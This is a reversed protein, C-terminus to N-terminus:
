NDMGLSVKNSFPVWFMLDLFIVAGRTFVSLFSWSYLMYFLNGTSLVQFEDQKIGPFHAVM